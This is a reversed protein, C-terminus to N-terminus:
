AVLNKNKLSQYKLKLSTPQDYYEFIDPDHEMEYVLVLEVTHSEAQIICGMKRSPYRVCVNQRGGGVRRVPSGKRISDILKRGHETVGLKRCLIDLQQSDLM